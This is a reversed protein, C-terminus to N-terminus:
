LGGFQGVRDVYGAFVGASYTRIIKFEMGDRPEAKENISDKRVYEIDDITITKPKPMNAEKIITPQEL